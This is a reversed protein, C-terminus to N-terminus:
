KKVKKKSEKAAAKQKKKLSRLLQTQKNTSIRRQLASVDQQRSERLGEQIMSM